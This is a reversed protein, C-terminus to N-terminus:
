RPRAACSARRTPTSSPSWRCRPCTSGRACCTSGSWSTSSAARAARHHDRVRELTEIDSHLYRVKIGLERLYQTLEEAMRKTLTTVLVREGRAVVTQPDRALLDDVQGQAPRVEIVPDLLGTPRIVQEVVVGGTRECSGRRRRRRSTSASASRARRVRRLHAAPQRAGRAAPLRLRGADAQALPRRPVHRAGAPHDPPERRGGAPLRRPLLRAADAAARGARPRLPPALLERHRPLLRDGQLMELDFRTRQELRQRKSSSARPARLEALREDLEREIAVIARELRDRPTVYHTQPYVAVRDIEELATAACRTSAASASSRTASTSSASAASRTPPCSRSCTAACASAATSLPRAPHAPVADRGAAAARRGHRDRRRPEFFQLMGFFAEPSGLGYICSVSAVILVDRREFLSKTARLRLRDIEENISPRRRSTPTADAPRLGRAPLLRLLLRLVRGRQAPLLQPVGPLAAGGADQQAVPGPDPPQLAEIVKAITFTKGSGTVGLLVQEREGARSARSWSRRDGAAPRGRARLEIPTPVRDHRSGTDPPPAPVQLTDAVAARPRSVGCREEPVRSASASEAAGEIRARGAEEISRDASQALEVQHAASSAQASREGATPRRRWAIGGAWARPRRRRAMWSATTRPRPARTPTPTPAAMWMGDTSESPSKAGLRMVSSWAAVAVDEAAVGALPAHHEVLALDRRLRCSRAARPRPCSSRGGRRGRGRRWGASTASRGAAPRSAVPAEVRVM